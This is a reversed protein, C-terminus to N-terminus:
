FTTGSVACWTPSAPASPMATPLQTLFGANQDIRKGTISSDNFNATYVYQNSPDEVICSPGTGVTIVNGGSSVDTLQQNAGIFYATIVSAPSGNVTNVGSNAVWLFNHTTEKIIRSPFVPSTGQANNARPSIANGLSGNSSVTFPLIQGTSNPPGADLAYLTTGTVYVYTLQTAGTPTPTSQTLTLQGNSSNQNYIFIAQAPDAATAGSDPGQEAVFVNGSSSAMWTPNTGVPFYTLALNNADRQQNNQVLSLRGTASDVSFATIAGITQPGSPSDPAFEDLAYLFGGDLLITRLNTGQSTFTQQHTLVGQGGISFLDIQSPQAGGANTCAAQGRNGCGQNLIYMYNGGPAVLAQIPNVGATASTSTRTLRGNANNIKYTSVQGFQQGNASQVGTVFFYGVTFTRSCSTMGFISGASAALALVARGLTKLKM